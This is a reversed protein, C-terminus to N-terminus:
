AAARRELDIRRLWDTEMREVEAAVAADVWAGPESEWIPVGRALARDRFLPSGRSIDGVDVEAQTLDGLETWLGAIGYPVDPPGGAEFLVGIDLDRPDPEGRGTSGFVTIVRINWRRALDDLEGSSAAEQLRRM